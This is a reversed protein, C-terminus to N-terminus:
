IGKLLEKLDFKDDDADHFGEGSANSYSELYTVEKQIAEQADVGSKVSEIIRTIGEAPVGATAAEVALKTEDVAPETVEAVPALKETFTALLGDIKASNGEILTALNSLATNTAELSEALKEIEAMDMDKEHPQNEKTLKGYNEIIQMFQGNAGPVSVVDVSTLENNFLSVANGAADKKGETFISLGVYDILEGVLDDGRKTLQVEAYLGDNEFVPESDIVGIIDEVGRVEDWKEAPAHNLHVKTGKPFAGPGYERLVSESYYATAGQGASILRAKYRRGQLRQMVGNGASEALFVADDTKKSERFWKNFM